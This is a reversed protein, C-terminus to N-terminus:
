QITETGKSVGIIPGFAEDVLAVAQAARQEPTLNEVQIPGGGPGQLTTPLVKGLLTLFAAPNADMQTELWQQGNKAQLAGLIMDKLAVDKKNPTKPKRGSGLPKPDGKKFPM